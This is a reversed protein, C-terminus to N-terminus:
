EDIVRTKQALFYTLGNLETMDHVKFGHDELLLSVSRESMYKNTKSDIMSYIMSLFPSSSAIGNEIADSNRRYHFDSPGNSLM